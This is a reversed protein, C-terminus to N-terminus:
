VSSLAFPAPYRGGMWPQHQVEELRSGDDGRPSYQSMSRAFKIGPPLSGDPSADGGFLVREMDRSDDFDLVGGVGDEALSPMHELWRREDLTCRIAIQISEQDFTLAPYQLRVETILRKRPYSYINEYFYMLEKPGLKAYTKVVRGWRSQDTWGTLLSQARSVTEYLVSDCSDKQCTLLHTEATSPQSVHHQNPDLRPCLYHLVVDKMSEVLDMLELLESTTHYRLQSIRVDDIYPEPLGVRPRPFDGHFYFGYLWWRYFARRFRHAEHPRLTRCNEAEHIWRMQPFREEWQRVLYCLKMIPTLDSETLTVTHLSSAAPANPKRIKGVETFHDHTGMSLLPWSEPRPSLITGKDGLYRQFVIRRPTYLGGAPDLDEVSATYIQLLEDFPSFERSLVPLLISAKRKAFITFSSRNAVCLNFVSDLDLHHYIDLLIEVPLETLRLQNASSTAM